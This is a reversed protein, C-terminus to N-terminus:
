PWKITNAVLLMCCAWEKATRSSEEKTFADFIYESFTSCNPFKQIDAQAYTLLYSRRNKNETSGVFNEFSDDM